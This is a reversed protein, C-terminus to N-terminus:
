PLTYNGYAIDYLGQYLEEQKKAIAKELMEQYFSGKNIDKRIHEPSIEILYAFNRNLEALLRTMLKVIASAFGLNCYVYIQSTTRMRLRKNAVDTDKPHVEYHMWICEKYEPNDKVSRDFTVTQVVYPMHSNPTYFDTIYFNDLGGELSLYQPKTESIIKLTLGELVSHYIPRVKNARTHNDTYIRLASMPMFFELVMRSNETPKEGQFDPNHYIKSYKELEELGNKFRSNYMMKM